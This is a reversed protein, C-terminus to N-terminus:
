GARPGRVRLRAALARESERDLSPRAFLVLFIWADVVLMMALVPEPNAAFSSHLQQADALPLAPSMILVLALAGISAIPLGALPAAVLGLLLRPLARPWSKEYGIVAIDSPLLGAVDAGDRVDRGHAVAITKRAFGGRRILEIETEISAGRATADLVVVDARAILDTVAQRWTEDSARLDLPMSRLPRWVKLGAFGVRFPDWDRMGSATPTLFAVRIGAPCCRLVAGIVTRDAFSSFRRLFLVFPRKLALRPALHRAGFPVFAGLWWFVAILYGGLRVPPVDSQMWLAEGGTRASLPQTYVLTWMGLWAVSMAFSIAIAGRRRSGDPRLPLARLLFRGFPLGLGLGLLTAVVVAAAAGPRVGPLKDFYLQPMMGLYVLFAGSGLASLAALPRLLLRALRDAM